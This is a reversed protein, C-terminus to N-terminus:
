HDTSAEADWIDTFNRDEALAKVDCHNHADIIPLDKVLAFLTESEPGSLLYKDDLFAM